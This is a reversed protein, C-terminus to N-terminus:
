AAGRAAAPVLEALLDDIDADRGQAGIVTVYVVSGRQRPAVVIGLGPYAELVSKVFVIEAEAMSLRRLVLGDERAAAILRDVDAIM